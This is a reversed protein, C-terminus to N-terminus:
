YLEVSLSTTEQNTPEPDRVLNVRPRNPASSLAKETVAQAKELAQIKRSLKLNEFEVPSYSSLGKVYEVHTEAKLEDETFPLISHLENARATSLEKAKIEELQSSLVKQADTLEAIKATLAAIEADKAEVASLAKQHDEASVKGNAQDQLEAIRTKLAEIEPNAEMSSVTRKMPNTDKLGQRITALAHRRVQIPMNSLKHVPGRTGTLTRYHAVLRKRDLEGKDNKIRFMRSKQDAPQGDEKNSFDYDSYCAAYFDDPSKGDDEEDAYKDVSATLIEPHTMYDDAWVNLDAGTPNDYVGSLGTMERPADPGEDMGPYFASSSKETEGLIDKAKRVQAAVQEPSLKTVQHARALVARAYRKAQPHGKPPLPLHYNGDSGKIGHKKYFGQSPNLDSFELDPNQDNDIGSGLGGNRASTVKSIIASADAPNVVHGVGCFSKPSVALFVPDDHYLVYDWKGDTGMRSHIPHGSKDTYGLEVGETYSLTKKIKTLDNKDLVLFKSETLLYDAEQSYSAFLGEGPKFDDPSYGLASVIERELKCVIDVGDDHLKYDIISGIAANNTGTVVQSTAPYGIKLHDLDTLSGSLTKVVEEPCDEKLFTVGNLTLQPFFSLLRGKTYFHSVSSEPLVLDTEKSVPSAVTKLRSLEKYLV